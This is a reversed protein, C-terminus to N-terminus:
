VSKIKKNQIAFFHRLISLLEINISKLSLPSFSNQISQDVVLLALYMVNAPAYENGLPRAEAG